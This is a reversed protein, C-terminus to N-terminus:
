FLASKKMNHCKMKNWEYEIYKKLFINNNDSKFPFMSGSNGANSSYLQESETESRTVLISWQVHKRQSSPSSLGAARTEWYICYYVVSVHHEKQQVRLICPM